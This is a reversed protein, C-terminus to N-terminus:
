EVDRVPLKAYGHAKGSIFLMFSIRSYSIFQEDTAFPGTLKAPGWALEKIMNARGCTFGSETPMEVAFAQVHYYHLLSDM